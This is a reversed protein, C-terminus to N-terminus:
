RQTANREDAYWQADNIISYFAVDIKDEFM